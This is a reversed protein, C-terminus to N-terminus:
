FQNCKSPDGKWLNWACNVLKFVSTGRKLAGKFGSQQFKKSYPDWCFRRAEKDGQAIASLANLDCDVQRARVFGTRFGGKCREWYVWRGRKHISPVLDGDFACRGDLDLQNGPDQNTYDYENASGGQVPDTQLFRGLQPQYVRQGMLVTGAGYEASREEAGLWGYRPSASRPIGFEDASYTSAVSTITPSPEATGAISGKPDALQFTAQSTQSDYIAALNGDLGAIQRTYQSEGVNEGTVPGRSKTWTKHKHIPSHSGRTRAECGRRPRARVPGASSLSTARM